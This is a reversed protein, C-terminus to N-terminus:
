AGLAQYRENLSGGGPVVHSANKRGARTNCLLEEKQWRRGVFLVHYGNHSDGTHNIVVM